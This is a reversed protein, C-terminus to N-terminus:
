PSSNCFFSSFGVNVTQFDMSDVLVDTVIQFGLSDMWVNKVSTVLFTQSATASEMEKTM